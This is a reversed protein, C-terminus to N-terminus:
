PFRRQWRAIRPGILVGLAAGAVAGVGAREATGLEYRVTCGFNTCREQEGATLAATAAGAAALLLTAEAIYSKRTWLSDIEALQVQREQSPTRVLLRGDAVPGCRGRVMEAGRTAIRVHAGPCATWVSASVRATDAQQAGARGAPVLFATAMALAALTQRFAM